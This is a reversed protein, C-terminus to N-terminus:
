RNTTLQQSQNWNKTFSEVTDLLATIKSWKWINNEFVYEEEYRGSIIGSGKIKLPNNDRFVVPCDLYWIASARNEHLSIIDNTVRHQSYSLVSPVHKFLFQEVEDRGQILPFGSFDAIVDNSLHESVLKEVQTDGSVIKDICLCYVRHKLDRIANKQELTNLREEINYLTNEQRSKYRPTV